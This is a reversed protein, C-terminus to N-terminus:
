FPLVGQSPMQLQINQNHSEDEKIGKLNIGWGKVKVTSKKFIGFFWSHKETEFEPELIIDVDSSSKARYLAQRETKNFNTYRNSSQLTKNGNKVLPIFWFLTKKEVTGEVRKANAYDLDAAVYTNISNSHIGMLPASNQYSACSGLLLTGLALMLVSKKM